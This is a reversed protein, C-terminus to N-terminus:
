PTVINSWFRFTDLLGMFEDFSERSPGSEAQYGMQEYSDAPLNTGHVSDPNAFVVHKLASATWRYNGNDFDHRVDVVQSSQLEAEPAM